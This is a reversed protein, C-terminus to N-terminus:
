CKIKSTKLEKVQSHLTKHVALTRSQCFGKGCEQCKFPKEKSHIYRTGRRDRLQPRRQPERQPAGPIGSASSEVPVAPARSDQGREQQPSPPRGVRPLARSGRLGAAAPHHPESAAGENPRFGSCGPLRTQCSRKSPGAEQSRRGREETRPSGKQTTLGVLSSRARLLPCSRSSSLLSFDSMERDWEQAPPPRKPLNVPFGRAVAQAGARKSGRCLRRKEWFRMRSAALGLHPAAGPRGLTSLVPGIVRIWIGLALDAQAAPIRAAELIPHCEPWSLAGQSCFLASIVGKWSELAAPELLLSLGPPFTWCTM